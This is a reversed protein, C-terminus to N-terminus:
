LLADLVVPYDQVGDGALSKKRLFPTEVGFKNVIKCYKKSDTSVVIKDIFKTKKAYKISYYILPYGKIKKMNKNKIGKSGSRAPIIILISKEKFM